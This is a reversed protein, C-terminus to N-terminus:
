LEELEAATYEWNGSKDGMLLCARGARRVQTVHFIDSGRTDVLYIDTPAHQVQACLQDFAESVLGENTIAFDHNEVILVTRTNGTRAADLKPGKDELAKRLRAHRLSEIDQPAFRGPLLRGGLGTSHHCALTVRVPADPQDAHIRVETPGQGRPQEQLRLIAGRTWELLAARVVTLRSGTFEGFAYVNVTITYALHPKLLDAVSAEFASDFVRGFLINDRQNDLFPEILTHEVAYHQSGIFCTIEIGRQSPTDRVVERRQEGHEAELIRLVADCCRGENTATKVM